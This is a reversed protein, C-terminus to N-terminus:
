STVPRDNDGNAEGGKGEFRRNWQTMFSAFKASANHAQIEQIEKDTKAPKGEAEQGRSDMGYPEKHYPMPKTGSKAFAHLVPSVACLADYVYNGLRLAEYSEKECKLDYAKRYFKLQTYDGHWYEEYPVGMAMYHVCLEDAWESFTLIKSDSSSGIGSEDEM